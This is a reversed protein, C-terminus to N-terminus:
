ILSDLKLADTADCNLLPLILERPWWYRPKDASGLVLSVGWKQLIM